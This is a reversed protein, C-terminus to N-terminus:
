PQTEAAKRWQDGAAQLSKELWTRYESGASSASEMAERGKAALGEALERGLRAQAGLYEPYDKVKGILEAQKVQADLLLGFLDLQRDVMEKFGRLQLEGLEVANAYGQEVAKKYLEVNEKADNM